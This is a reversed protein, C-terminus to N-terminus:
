APTGKAMRQQPRAVTTMAPPSSTTLPPMSRDSGALATSTAAMMAWSSACPPTPNGIAKAAPANAPSAMPAALASSTTAIPIVGRSAVSALETATTPRALTTVELRRILTSPGTTVMRRSPVTSPTGTATKSM